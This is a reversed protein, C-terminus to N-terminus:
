VATTGIEDEGFESYGQGIHGEVIDIIDETTVDPLGFEQLRANIM